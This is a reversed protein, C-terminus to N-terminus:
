RRIFQQSNDIDRSSESDIIGVITWFFLLHVISQNQFQIWVLYIILASTVEKRKAAKVIVALLFLYSIFGLIGSFVLLDMLYNHARDLILSKMSYIVPPISGLNYNFNNLYQSFALNFNELGYGLFLRQLIVGWVVPWILVRKEPSNNLLWISTQPEVIERFIIGSSILSLYLVLFSFGSIVVIFIIRRKGSVLKFVEVLFFTLSIFIAARSFSIVIASFIIVLMLLYTKSFKKNTKVIHFWFPLSLILFGSYFNPQGFTSVVRGAYTPIGINFGKLLIFQSIAIAAVIFASYSITKIIHNFNIKLESLMLYFLFLLWYLILGQYYPHRGMLSQFSDLGTLMTLTLCSLFVFSAIKILSYHLKIIKEYLLYSFIFGAFIVIGLFSLVKISEFGFGFYESILPIIFFAFLLLKELFRILM